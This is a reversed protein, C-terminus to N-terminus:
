PSGTRQPPVAPPPRSSPAAPASPIPQASQASLTLQLSPAPQTALQTQTPPPPPPMTPATQTLAPADGTTTGGFSSLKPMCDRVLAGVVVLALGAAVRYYTQKKEVKHVRETLSIETVQIRNTLTQEMNTVRDTLTKEANHFRDTLMSEAGQLRDSLNREVGKIRASLGEFSQLEGSIQTLFESPIGMQKPKERISKSTGSLDSYWILFCPEGQKLHITVPGANFVSFILKGEFGPDVHFGSVNILGRFKIKAKMSIFAIADAPVSITEETLLFAFQGPPITFGANDSLARTTQQKPDATDAPPSVYIERGISLTYAACDINTERFPNVLKPLREQLREGNWFAM